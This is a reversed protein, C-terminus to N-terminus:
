EINRPKGGFGRSCYNNGLDWTSLKQIRPGEPLQMGELHLTRVEALFKGMLLYVSKKVKSLQSHLFPVPFSNYHGLYSISYRDKGASKPIELVLPGGKIGLSSYGLLLLVGCSTYNGKLLIDPKIPIIYRYHLLYHFSIYVGLCTKPFRM